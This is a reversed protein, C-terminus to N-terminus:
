GYEWFITGDANEFGCSGVKVKYKKHKKNKKELMARQFCFGPTQKVLKAYGPFRECDRMILAFDRTIHPLVLMTLEKSFEKRVVKSNPEAFM